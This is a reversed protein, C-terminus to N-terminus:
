AGQTLVRGLHWARRIVPQGSPLCSLVGIFSAYSLGAAVALTGLGGPPLHARAAVLAGATAAAAILFPVLAGALDATAVLGDRTAGRCILPTSLLLMSLGAGAAVGNPGWPLGAVFAVVSIASTAAVYATQRRTRDQTTFLWFTSAYLPSALGGLCLWAFVPAVGAWHPGLLFLMLPQAMVMAFLVGPTVLLLMVRLMDLYTRKYRGPDVRLRTLLPVAVRGIPTTLQAVPQVVLKYGRDYLGLPGSGRTAGLLINDCSTTAYGALNYGTIHLGVRVLRKVRPDYAPRGPRWGSLPWALLVTALTEAIAFAILSWYAWGYWAAALGVLLALGSPVVDLVALAVFRMHRTLLAMPQVALGSVPLLAALVLTVRITRPEHYLWAIAPSLLALSGALATNLLLGFWFLASVDRPTIEPEFIVAQGLGLEGMLYVLSLIPAVMAVLGYDAPVLLRAIVIQGALKIVARCGQSIFTAATGHVSRRRLAWIEGDGGAGGRDLPVAAGPMDAAASPGPMPDDTRGSLM